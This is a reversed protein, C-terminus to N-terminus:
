KVWESLSICLIKIVESTILMASQAADLQNCSTKSKSIRTSQCLLSLCLSKFHSPLIGLVYRLVQPINMHWRSLKFFICLYTVRNFKKLKAFSHFIYPTFNLLVINIEKHDESKRYFFMPTNFYILSKEMWHFPAIAIGKGERGVENLHLQYILFRYM